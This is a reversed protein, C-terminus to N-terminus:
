SSRRNKGTAWEYPSFAKLEEITYHFGLEKRFEDINQGVIHVMASAYAVGVITVIVQFRSTLLNLLM